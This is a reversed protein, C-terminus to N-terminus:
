PMFCKSNLILNLIQKTLLLVFLHAPCTVGVWYLNSRLTFSVFGKTKRAKWLHVSSLFFDNTSTIAYFKFMKMFLFIYKFIIIILPSMLLRTIWWYKWSTSMFNKNSYFPKQSINKRLPVYVESRLALPTRKPTKVCCLVEVLFSPYILNTTWFTLTVNDLCFSSWNNTNLDTRLFIVTRYIDSRFIDMYTRYTYNDGLFFPFVCIKASSDNWVRCCRGFSNKYSAPLTTKKQESLTSSRLATDSPSTCTCERCCSGECKVVRRYKM